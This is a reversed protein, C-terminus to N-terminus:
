TQQGMGTRLAIPAHVDVEPPRHPAIAVTPRRLYARLRSVPRLRAIVELELVRLAVPQTDNVAADCRPCTVADLFSVRRLLQAWPL